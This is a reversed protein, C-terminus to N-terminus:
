GKGQPGARSPPPGVWPNRRLKNKSRPLIERIGLPRKGGWFARSLPPPKAGWGKGHAHGNPGVVFRCIRPGSSLYAGPPGRPLYTRLRLNVLKPDDGFCASIPGSYNPITTHRNTPVTGSTETKTRGFKLYLDPEFELIKPRIRELKRPRKLKASVSLDELVTLVDLNRSM